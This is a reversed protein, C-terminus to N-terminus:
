QLRALPLTLSNKLYPPTYTFCNKPKKNKNTLMYEAAIPFDFIIIAPTRKHM